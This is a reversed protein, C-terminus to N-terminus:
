QVAFSLNAVKFSNSNGTKINAKRQLVRNLKKFFGGVKSKKPQDEEEEFGYTIKEDKNDAFATTIAYPQAAEDIGKNDLVKIENKKVSPVGAININNGDDKNIKELVPAPLNNSPKKNIPAPDKAVFDAVPQLKQKDALQSQKNNKVKEVAAATAINTTIDSDKKAPQEPLNKVSEKVVPSKTPTTAFGEGGTFKSERNLYSVTSWLGFGILVAAAAIRWGMPILRGKDKKYLIAKDAFMVKETAALKTQKLLEWEKAIEGDSEMASKVAAIDSKDLEDDLLLLLKEQLSSGIHEAQLLSGKNELIISEPTLTSDLLMHLEKKLDPNQLVFEDVATRENASLENDTYLLFYEEYNDRNINMKQM